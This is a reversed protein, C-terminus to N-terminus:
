SADGPRRALFVVFHSDASPETDSYDATLRVSFGASELMARLENTFYVNIKITHEDQEVLEGDRWRHGRIEAVVRQTLPDVDILRSTLAYESGDSGRRREEPESWQEPLDRRRESSWYPWLHEDTHPVENDLILQGGPELHEHLRRIAAEDDARSGGGLGFGGCVYISRYKRPLDLRHMAQRYLRPALDHAQARQRCMALMDDSIDVGDVDLGARLYPILLRGTGCAVDLAPQAAEVFPRFYDIEPGSTNFEAWWKAVLGYHWTM